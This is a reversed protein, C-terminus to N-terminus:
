WNGIDDETGEKGDPGASYIDYRDPNHTGPFRYYYEHKWPDLPPKELYPGRWRQAAGDPATLLAKLGEATSPYNGMHTRYTLLATKATTNIFLSAVDTSAGGFIKDVNVIAVGALLAILAIVILMEFLTFASRRNRSASPIESNRTMAPYM